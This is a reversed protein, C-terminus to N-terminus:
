LIAPPGRAHSIARTQQCLNIPRQGLIGQCAVSHDACFPQVTPSVSKYHSCISCASSDCDHHSPEKDVALRASDASSDSKTGPHHHEGACCRTAHSHDQSEESTEAAVDHTHRHWYPGVASTVGFVILLVFNTARPAFRFM